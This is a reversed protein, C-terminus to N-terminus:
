FQNQSRSHDFHRNLPHIHAHSSSLLLVGVPSVYEGFERGIGSSKMGGFPVQMNM